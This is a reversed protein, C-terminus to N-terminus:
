KLSRKGPTICTQQTVTVYHQFSLYKNILRDGPRTKYTMRLNISNIKRSVKSKTATYFLYISAIM